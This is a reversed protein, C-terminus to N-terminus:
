LFGVKVEDHFLVHNLKKAPLTAAPNRVQESLPLLDLEDLDSSLKDLKKLNRQHKRDFEKEESSMKDETTKRLTASQEVTNGPSSVSTNVRVEAMLSQMHAATITDLAGPSM